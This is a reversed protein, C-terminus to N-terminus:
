MFIVYLQYNQYNKKTFTPDPPALIVFTNKELGQGRDGLPGGWRYSQPMQVSGVFQYLLANM